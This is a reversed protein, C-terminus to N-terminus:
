GRVSANGPPARLTLRKVLLGRLGRLATGDFELDGAIWAVTLATRGARFARCFPSLSGSIFRATLQFRSM